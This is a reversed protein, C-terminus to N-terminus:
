RSRASVRLLSRSVGPQLVASPQSQHLAQSESPACLVRHGDNNSIEEQGKDCMLHETIVSNM